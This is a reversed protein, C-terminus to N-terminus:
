EMARVPTDDRQEILQQIRANIAATAQASQPHKALWRNLIVDAQRQRDEPSALYDYEAMPDIRQIAHGAVYRVASYPDSLAAVLYPMADAVPATKQADAWGFHWAAVARLVADGSLLWEVAAPQGDDVLGAPVPQGYWSALAKATWGLSKDVHCLNCANPRNSGGTKGTVVPSDIRHNRIARLLGYITHPMHCNYCHSGVSGSAHHTHATIASGIKAHCRLCPADTAADKSLLNNPDSNHFTHCTGCWLTGSKMCKSEILGSMDRSSVRGTGDAWFYNGFYQPDDQMHKQLAATMHLPRLLPMSAELDQGPQYTKGEGREIEDTVDTLSHCQGCVESARLAPLRAPNVITPDAGGRLHLWYRRLPNQNAAIHAGAPGHCAECAVGMEAVRTQIPQTHALPQGGTSHCRICSVNWVQIQHRGGPPHLFVEGRPVWRHDEFLYTFPLSMQANDIGTPVWYAQMHHSGTVLSIRRQVRPPAEGPGPPPIQGFDVEYQWVPDVMDAMFDDGQRYLTVDYGGGVLHVNNFDGKITEPSAYTTMTRHYGHHWTDYQEPHCAECRNSTAYGPRTAQPAETALEAARRRAADTRRATWMCLPVTLLVFLGTLAWGPHRPAAM